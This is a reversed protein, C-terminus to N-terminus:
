WAGRSTLIKGLLVIKDAIDINQWEEVLYVGQHQNIDFFHFSNAAKMITKQYGIIECVEVPIPILQIIGGEASVVLSAIGSDLKTPEAQATQIKLVKTVTEPHQIVQEIALREKKYFQDTDYKYSYIGIQDKCACVCFIEELFQNILFDQNLVRIQKSLSSFESLRKGKDRFVHLKTDCIADSILLYDQFRKMELIYSYGPQQECKELKQADTLYYGNVQKSEAVLICKSKPFAVISTAANQIEEQTVRNLALKTGQQIRSNNVQQVMGSEKIFKLQQTENKLYEENVQEVTLVSIKGYEKNFGGMVYGTGLFILERFEETLQYRELIEARKERDDNKRRRDVRGYQDVPKYSGQWHKGFVQPYKSWISDSVLSNVHETRMIDLPQHDCIANNEVLFLHEHNFRSFSNFPAPDRPLIKHCFEALQQSDMRDEYTEVTDFIRINAVEDKTISHVPRVEFRQTSSVVVFANTRANYAFRSVTFPLHLIQRQVNFGNVSFSSLYVLPKIQLNSMTRSLNYDLSSRVSGFNFKSFFHLRAIKPALQYDKQILQQSDVLAIFGFSLQLIQRPPFTTQLLVSLSGAKIKCPQKGVQYFSVAGHLTPVVAFSIPESQHNPTPYGIFLVETDDVVVERFPEQQLLRFEKKNERYPFAFRDELYKARFLFQSLSKVLKIKREFLQYCIIGAGKQSCFVYMNQGSKKFWIQSYILAFFEDNIQRELPIMLKNQEFDDSDAPIFDIIDQFETKGKQLLFPSFCGVFEPKDKLIGFIHVVSDSTIVTIYYEYNIRTHTFHYSLNLAGSFLQASTIQCDKVELFDELIFTWSSIKEGQRGVQYVLVHNDFCILCTNNVISACLAIDDYEYPVIIPKKSFNVYIKMEFQTIIVLNQGIKKCCLVLQTTNLDNYECKDTIEVKNQKQTVKVVEASLKRVVLIFAEKTAADEQILHMQGIQDNFVKDLLQCGELSIQQNIRQIAGSHHLLAVQNQVFTTHKRQTTCSDVVGSLSPIVNIIKSILHKITEFSEEGDARAIQLINSPKFQAPKINFLNDYQKKTFQLKQGAFDVNIIEHEEVSEQKVEKKINIIKCANKLEYYLQQRFQDDSIEHSQRFDTYYGPEPVAYSIQFQQIYSDGVSSGMLVQYSLQKDKKKDFHDVAFSQGLVTMSNVIMENWLAQSPDAMLIPLIRVGTDDFIVSYLIGQDNAILLESESLFVTQAQNIPPIQDFQQLCTKPGVYKKNNSFLEAELTFDFTPFNGLINCVQSYKMNIEDSSYGYYKFTEAQTLAPSGPILQSPVKVIKEQNITQILENEKLINDNLSNYVKNKMLNMFDFNIEDKFIKFYEIIQDCDADTEEYLYAFRLRLDTQKFRKFIIQRPALILFGHPADVIKYSDFPLQTLKQTETVHSNHTSFITVYNSRLNKFNHMVNGPDLYQTQALIALYQEHAAISIIKGSKFQVSQSKQLGLHIFTLTNHSSATVVIDPKCFCYQIDTYILQESPPITDFTKIQNLQKDLLMLHTQFGVLIFHQYTDLFLIRAQFQHNTYFSLQTGNNLIDYIELISSRAVFLQQGLKKSLTIGAPTVTQHPYAVPNPM